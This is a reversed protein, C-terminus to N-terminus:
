LGFLKFWYKCRKSNHDTNTVFLYKVKRKDIVEMFSLDLSSSITILYSNGDVQSLATGVFTYKDNNKVGDFLMIRTYETIAVKTFVDIEGCYDVKTLYTEIDVINNSYNGVTFIIAKNDEM